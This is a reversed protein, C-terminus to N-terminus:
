RWNLLKSVKDNSWTCKM